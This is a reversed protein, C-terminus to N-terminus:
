KTPTRNLSTIGPLIAEFGTEIAAVIERFIPTSAIEALNEVFKGSAEPGGALKAAEAKVATTEDQARQEQPLFTELLRLREERSVKGGARAVRSTIAAVRQAARDVPDLVESAAFGVLPVNAFARLGAETFSQSQTIGGQSGAGFRLQTSVFRTGFDRAFKEGQRLTANVAFGVTRDLVNLALGAGGGALGGALGLAGGAAGGGGASVGLAGGLKSGRSISGIVSNLGGFSRTLENVVDKLQDVSISERGPM